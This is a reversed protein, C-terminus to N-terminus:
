TVLENFETTLLPMGDVVVALLTDVADIAGVNLLRCVSLMGIVILWGCTRLAPAKIYFDPWTEWFFTRRIALAVTYLIMSKVLEVAM